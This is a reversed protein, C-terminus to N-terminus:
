AFRSAPEPRAARKKYTRSALRELISALLMASANWSRSPSPAAIEPRDQALIHEIAAALAAANNPPVLVLRGNETVESIGGVRSAIMQAGCANAEMLVNPLGESRSPLIVVDAARYWHPMEELPRSGMLRVRQPLQAERIKRELVRYMPGQGIMRCDFSVSRRALLACAEILVDPGKVAVLNGVFFLLPVPPKKPEREPEEDIPLGLRTRATQRSGPHFLNCDVGNRVVFIKENAVGLAIVERALHKSVTIIMDARNLAEITRRRRAISQDLLLVDSGHVKVAVPLGAEHALEVAAWGDPYAWAALVIDPRFEEVARRFHKRICRKFCHGYWGRLIKPPFWYRPHEITVGKTNTRSQAPHKRAWKTSLEETWAIPAIMRLEHQAALAEFQQRNFPARNPQHPNPYLNTIALIRM